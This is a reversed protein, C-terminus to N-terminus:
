QVSERVGDYSTGIPKVDIPESRKKEAKEKQQRARMAMYRPGYVTAAVITLNLWASAEESLISKEYLAEVRQIAQALNGAEGDNLMLEETDLLSALMVHSSILIQTLNSHAEKKTGAPRGRKRRKPGDYVGGSTSGDSPKDDTTNFASPNFTYEDTKNDEGTGVGDVQPAERNGDESDARSERVTKAAM